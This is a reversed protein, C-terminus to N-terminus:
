KKNLKEKLLLKPAAISPPQKHENTVNQKKLQLNDIQIQPQQAKKVQNCQSRSFFIQISGITITFITLTIIIYTLWTNKKNLEKTIKVNYMTSLSHVKNLLTIVHETDKPPECCLTQIYETCQSTSLSAIEGKKFVEYIQQITAKTKM